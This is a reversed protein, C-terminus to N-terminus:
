GPLGDGSILFRVFAVQTLVHSSTQVLRTRDASPRLVDFSVIGATRIPPLPAESEGAVFQWSTADTASRVQVAVKIHRLAESWQEYARATDYIIDGSKFGFGVGQTWVSVTQKEVVRATQRIDLADNFCRPVHMFWGGTADSEPPRMLDTLREEKKAPVQLLRELIDLATQRM